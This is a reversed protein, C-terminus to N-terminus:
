NGCLGQGFQNGVAFLIRSLQAVSMRAHAGGWMKRRFQQFVHGAQVHLGDGVLGARLHGRIQQRPMVFHQEM